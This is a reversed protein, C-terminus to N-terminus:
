LFRMFKMCNDTDSQDFFEMEDAKRKHFIHLDVLKISFRPIISKEGGRASSWILAGEFVRFWRNGKRTWEIEEDNVIDKLGGRIMFSLAGSDARGEELGAKSMMDIHASLANNYSTFDGPNKYAEEIASVLKQWPDHYDRKQLGSEASFTHSIEHLPMMASYISDSIANSNLIIFNNTKNIKRGVKIKEAKFLARYREHLEGGLEVTDAYGGDVEPLGFDKLREPSFAGLITKEAMTKGSIIQSSGGFHVKTGPINAKKIVSNLVKVAKMDTEARASSGVHIM